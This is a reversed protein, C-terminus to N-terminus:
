SPFCTYHSFLQTAAATVSCSALGVCLHLWLPKTATFKGTLNNKYTKPTGNQNQGFHPDSPQIKGSGNTEQSCM